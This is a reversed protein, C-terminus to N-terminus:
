VYENGKKSTKSDQLVAVIENTKSALSAPVFVKRRIWEEAISIGRNSPEFIGIMYEEMNMIGDWPLQFWCIVMLVTKDQQLMVKAKYRLITSAVCGRDSDTGASGSYINGAVFWEIRPLRVTYM